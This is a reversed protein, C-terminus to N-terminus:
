TGNTKRRIDLLDGVAAPARVIQSQPQLMPRTLLQVRQAEIAYAIVPPQLNSVHRLAGDPEIISFLFGSCDFRETEGSQKNRIILEFPAGM